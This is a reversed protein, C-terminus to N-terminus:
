KPKVQLEQFVLVDRYNPSLSERLKLADQLESYIITTHIPKYARDVAVLCYAMM